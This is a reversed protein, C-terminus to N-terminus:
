GHHSMDQSKPMSSSTLGLHGGPDLNGSGLLLHLLYSIKNNQYAICYHSILLYFDHPLKLSVLRLM